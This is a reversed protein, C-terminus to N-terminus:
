IKQIKLTKKTKLLIILMNACVLINKYLQTELSKAVTEVCCKILKLSKKITRKMEIKKKKKKNKNKNMKIKIKTIIKTIM